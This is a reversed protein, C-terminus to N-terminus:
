EFLLFAPACDSWCVPLEVDLPSFQQFLLTQFMIKNYSKKEKLVSVISFM